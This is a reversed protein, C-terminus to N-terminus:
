TGGGSQGGKALRVDHCDVYVVKSCRCLISTLLLICICLCNCPLNLIFFTLITCCSTELKDTEVFVSVNLDVSIEM